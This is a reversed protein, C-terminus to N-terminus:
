PYGRFCSPRRLVTRERHWWCMMSVTRSIAGVNRDMDFDVHGRCPLDSQCIGILGPFESLDEEIKVKSASLAFIKVLSLFVISERFSEEETSTKVIFDTVREKFALILIRIHVFDATKRRIHRLALPAYRGRFRHTKNGM